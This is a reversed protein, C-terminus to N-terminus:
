EEIKSLQNTRKVEDFKEKLNKLSEDTDECDFMPIELDEELNLDKLTIWDEKPMKKFFKYKKHMETILPRDDMNYKLCDAM